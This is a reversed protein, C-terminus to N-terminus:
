FTNNLIELIRKGAQGDWLPIKNSSKIDGNLMIDNMRKQFLNGDHGIVTNTGLEVTVPRETNHRLTLCPIGLASTEEQLGGSDTVVCLANMMLNVSELYSVPEILHIQASNKLLQFRNIKELNKKTRPHVPFIISTQHSLWILQDCLANLNKEDDVNSPRHLTVYVYEKPMVGYQGAVNLEKAKEKMRFLTDVMVHGVFHIKESPIGERKLNDVGSQETVFLYDSLSDTVVRNIEEPMCRDFSRLGAEVHVVPIQLKSAVLACAVTSNVDGVVLCLDPKNALVWTEYRKMIEATQRAHSASGVELHKIPKPLGLEQFFIDSMSIDYHQGTHILRLKLHPFQDAVVFLAAVKMFNPRAGAIIDIIKNSARL